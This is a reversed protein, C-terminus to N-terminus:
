RQWVGANTESSGEGRLAAELPRVLLVPVSARQLIDSAVSGLALRALGTRGHTAMAILDVQEEQALSAITPSAFGGVARVRVSRRPSGLQSALEELRERAEALAQESHFPQYVPPEVVRLLLLGAHLADALEKAPGLAAESLSSGDLPVMVRLPHQGSWTAAVRPPILLVPCSGQRVVTEAVSRQLLRNLGARAHTAMVILDARRERAVESIADGVDVEYAHRVCSDVAIREV